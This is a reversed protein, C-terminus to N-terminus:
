TKASKLGQVLLSIANLGRQWHFREYAFRLKASPIEIRRYIEKREKDMRVNYDPHREYIQGVGVTTTCPREIKLGAFDTMQMIVQSLNSFWDVVFSLRVGEVFMQVPNILGLQNALWLNPNDVRVHAQIRVGAKFVYRTEYFGGVNLNSASYGSGTVKTSPPERTLVDMGNYIDQCLPKVGYSYWLWESGARKLASRGDPLTIYRRTVQKKYYTGNRRRYRRVVTRSTEVPPNVRLIKAAESLRGRRVANAALLARTIGGSVTNWSSRLETTLTAGFSSSDGLKGVFRARAENTAIVVDESSGPSIAWSSADVPGGSLARGIHVYLATDVYPPKQNAGIRLYDYPVTTSPNGFIPNIWVGHRRIRKETPIFPAVM